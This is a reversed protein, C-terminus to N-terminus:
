SISITLLSYSLFKQKVADSASTLFVFCLAASVCSIKLIYQKLPGNMKEQFM